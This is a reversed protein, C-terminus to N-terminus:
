NKNLKGSKFFRGEGKRHLLCFVNAEQGTLKEPGFSTGQEQGQVM